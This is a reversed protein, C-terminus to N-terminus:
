VCQTCANVAFATSNNNWIYGANCSTCFGHTINCASCGVNTCITCTGNGGISYFGTSCLTCDSGVVTGSNYQYGRNCNTCFGNVSNCALCANSICSICVNTNGLSYTGVACALGTSITANWGFGPFTGTCINTSQNCTSCNSNTQIISCNV